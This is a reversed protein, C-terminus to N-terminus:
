KPSLVSLKSIKHLSHDNKQSISKNLQGKVERLRLRM